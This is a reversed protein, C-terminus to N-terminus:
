IRRRFGRIKMDRVHVSISPALAPLLRLKNPPRSPVIRVNPFDVRLNNCPALARRHNGVDFEQLVFRVGTAKEPM